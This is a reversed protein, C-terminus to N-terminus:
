QTRRTSISSWLHNQHKISELSIEKDAETYEKLDGNKARALGEYPLEVREVFNDKVCDLVGKWANIKYYRWKGGPALSGPGLRSIVYNLVGVRDNEPLAKIDEILSDIKNNLEKTQEIYPM